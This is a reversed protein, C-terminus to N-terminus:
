NVKAAQTHMEVAREVEKFDYTDYLPSTEDSQSIEFHHIFLFNEPIEKGAGDNYFIRNFQNSDNGIVFLWDHQIDTVANFNGKLDRMFTFATIDRNANPMGFIGTMLSPAAKYEAYRPVFGFVKSHITTNTFALNYDNSVFVEDAAVAQVGLGDFDAHWFDLIDTHKNIRNIGQYYGVEPVVSNIVIVYGFEQGLNYTFQHQGYGVGKGSYDGLVAGSNSNSDYTDSHSMVDGFNINYTDSGLLISRKMIESSLNIGYEAFYRDVARVGSLRHRTTYDTLAKLIDHQYQTISSVNNPQSSTPASAYPTNNGLNNKASASQIGSSNQTVGSPLTIDPINYISEAGSNPATPRDWADVYLSDDYCVCGCLLSISLLDSLNLYVSQLSDNLFLRQLGSVLSSNIYQSPYYWDIMVKAFALIPLASYETLDRDDMNIKYGLSTLLKLIWKGQSSLLLYNVNGSQACSIDYNNVNGGSSGYVVSNLLVDNTVLMTKIQMGYQGDVISFIPESQIFENFRPMITRMPVFFCRNNVRARGFTPKVLPNLRVFSELNIKLDMNPVVERVAIPMGCMFPQSTVHDFSYNKNNKKRNATPIVQKYTDAM